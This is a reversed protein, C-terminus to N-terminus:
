RLLSPDTRVAKRFAWRAQVNTRHDKTFMPFRPSAWAVFRVFYLPKDLMTKM